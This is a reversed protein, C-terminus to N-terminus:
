KSDKFPRVGLKMGNSSYGVYGRKDNYSVSWTYGSMPKYPSATWLYAAEGMRPEGYYPDFYLNAPLIRIVDNEEHTHWFSETAIDDLTGSFTEGLLRATIKLHSKKEGVRHQGIVEYRYATQFRNDPAPAFGEEVESVGKKFRLGYCIRSGKVPKYDNLFSAKVDGIQVAEAADKEEMNSDFWIYILNQPGYAPLIVAAEEKTPVHYGNPCTVAIEGHPFYGSADNDHSEAFLRPTPSVNYEAVYSLPNIQLEQRAERTISIRHVKGDPSTAEIIFVAEQSGPKVTFTKQENDVAIESSNGDALTIRFGQTELTNESIVKGENDTETSIGEIKGAGGEASFHDPTARFTYNTKTPIPNPDPKPCPNEHCASLIIAALLLLFNKM